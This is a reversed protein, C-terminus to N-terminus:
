VALVDAVGRELVDGLLYLGRVGGQRAASSRGGLSDEPTQPMRPRAPRHRSRAPPAAGPVTDATCTEARRRARAPARTGPRQPARGPPNPCVRTHPAARGPRERWWRRPAEADTYESGAPPCRGTRRPM